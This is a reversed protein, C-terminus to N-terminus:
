KKKKDAAPAPKAADAPQTPAAKSQEATPTGGAAESPLSKDTAGGQKQLHRVYNVVAWRDKAFPMQTIYAGMVGQGDTIIHFLQGDKMGRVKESLLPPPKIGMFKPAVPGDGRGSEGHCVFCYNKYHKEGLKLVEPNDLANPNKLNNAAAAADGKFLYVERNMAATGEPPLRLGSQNRNHPNFGQTKVAPQEMMDQIIEVNPKDGSAGCGTLGALFVMAFLGVFFMMALSLSRDSVM